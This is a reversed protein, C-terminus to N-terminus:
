CALDFAREIAAVFRDEQGPLILIQGKNLPDFQWGRRGQLPIIKLQRNENYVLLTIEIFLYKQKLTLMQKKIAPSEFSVPEQFESKELLAGISAAGNEVVREKSITEFPTVLIYGGVVPDRRFPLVLYDGESVPRGLYCLGETRSRM